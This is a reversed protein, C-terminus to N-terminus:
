GDNFTRKQGLATRHGSEPAIRVDPQPPSRRPDHGAERAYAILRRNQRWQRRSNQVTSLVRATTALFVIAEAIEEAEAPRGVPARAALQQLGEGLSNPSDQGSLSRFKTYTSQSSALPM